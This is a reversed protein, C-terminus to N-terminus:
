FYRRLITNDFLFIVLFFDFFFPLALFWTPMVGYTKLKGADLMWCGTVLKWNGTELM